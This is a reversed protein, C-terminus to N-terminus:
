NFQFPRFSFRIGEAIALHKFSLVVLINFLSLLNRNGLGTQSEKSVRYFHMGQCTRLLDITIIESKKKVAIDRKAALIYEKIDRM